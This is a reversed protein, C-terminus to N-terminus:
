DGNVGHFPVKLTNRLAVFNDKKDEDQSRKGSM